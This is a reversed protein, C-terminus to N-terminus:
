VAISSISAAMLVWSVRQGQAQYAKDPVKQPSVGTIVHSTGDTTNNLLMTTSAWEDTGAAVLYNYWALLWKHVTSTQQCSVTLHGSDGAVKSVMVSGDAATDHVTRDTAMSVTIEGVGEGTFTYAGLSSQSIAGSLDLFSYTTQSAL